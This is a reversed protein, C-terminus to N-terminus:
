HGKGKGGGLLGASKVVVYLFLVFLITIIPVLVTTIATYFATIIASVANAAVSGAPLAAFLTYGLYLAIGFGFTLVIALRALSEAESVNM